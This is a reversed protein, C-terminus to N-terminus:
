YEFTPQPLEDERPLAVNKAQAFKYQDENYYPWVESSITDGLVTIAFGNLQKKLEERPTSPGTSIENEGMKKVEYPYYNPQDQYNPKTRSKSHKGHVIKQSRLSEHMNPYDPFKQRYHNM